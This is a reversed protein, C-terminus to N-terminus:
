AKGKNLDHIVRLGILTLDPEVVEIIPTEKAILAALGGTAVVRAKEPIEARIKSVLGEVLGVYGFIIGSQMAQITSKGIARKPRLLEVRPLQATRTFLAEAAVAMGPAISGGVYEGERSVIDFTTATGFDIVILWGGYLHRAAAANVVRDTGVEKPNDMAIRIGTKVGAEVVLPELKFYQQCMEAFTTTLPPVVSCLVAQAVASPPIKSHQLLALLITAYEDPMRHISTAMRWTTKIKDGQFIGVTINTNGVDFALLMDTM